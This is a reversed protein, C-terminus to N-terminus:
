KRLYNKVAEVSPGVADVAKKLQDETCNFRDCWYRREWAQNINIKTTDEPRRITLNDM